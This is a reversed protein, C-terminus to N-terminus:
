IAKRALKIEGIDPYIIRLLDGISSLSLILLLGLPLTFKM